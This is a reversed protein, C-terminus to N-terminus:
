NEIEIVTRSEIHEKLQEPTWWSSKMKRQSFLKEAQDCFHPSDTRNSQGFPLCTWSQITKSLVFIGTSTQGSHAWRTHDNKEEGYQVSRLTTLGIFESMGGECPFSHEGRGVRFVEGYTKEINGFNARLKKMAKDFSNVLLKLENDSLSIKPPVAGLPERLFDVKQAINKMNSGGFEIMLQKRWYAYILAARSDSALEYNWSKMEIIGDFYDQNSKQM